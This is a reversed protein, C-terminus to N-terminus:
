LMMLIIPIAVSEHRLWSGFDPEFMASCLLFALYLYLAITRTQAVYPSEPEPADMGEDTDEEEPDEEDKCFTIIETSEEDEVEEEILDEEEKTALNRRIFAKVIFIILLAQYLIFVLYTVQGRFLLEIPFALRFIKIFYDLSLMVPNGTFIQGIETRSTSGYRTNVRVMENYTEEDEGAMFGMFAYHFLGFLVFIMCIYFVMKRKGKKTSTDVRALLVDVIVNIVIFFLFILAYYKRTFLFTIVLSLLVLIRRTSYHGRTRMAFYILLWFVFQYPEKGMSFCFLNLVGVSFYIFINEWKGAYPHEKYYTYIILSLLLNFVITLCIEWGVFTQIGFINLANFFAIENNVIPGFVEITTFKHQYVLTAISWGISMQVLQVYMVTWRVIKAAIIIPLLWLFYNNINRRVRLYDM